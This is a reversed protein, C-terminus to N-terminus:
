AKVNELFNKIKIISKCKIKKKRYHGVIREVGTEVDVGYPRTITIANAVNQPKLGGALIVPKQVEKVIEAALSWNYIGVGSGGKWKSDLLIGDVYPLYIEINKLIKENSKMSMSISKVIKIEKKQRISDLNKLLNLFEKLPVKGQIQITDFGVKYLIWKVVIPDVIDTVMWCSLPTPLFKLIYKLQKIHDELKNQNWRKWIHFGVADTGLEAAEYAIELSKIGCIKMKTSKDETNWFRKIMTSYYM